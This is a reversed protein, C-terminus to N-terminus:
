YRGKLKDKLLKVWAVPDDGDAGGARTDDAKLV